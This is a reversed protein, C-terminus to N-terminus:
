CVAMSRMDAFKVVLVNRAAGLHVGEEDEDVFYMGGGGGGM